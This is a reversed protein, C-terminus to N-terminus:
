EKAENAWYAQKAETGSYLIVADVIVVINLLNGCRPGRVSAFQLRREKGSEDGKEVVSIQDSGWIRVVTAEFSNGKTMSVGNAHGNTAAGGKVASAGYGEWLGLRKEKATKEAARM